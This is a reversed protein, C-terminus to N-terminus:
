PAKEQHTPHTVQQQRRITFRGDFVGSNGQPTFTAPVVVDQTKGKVTLQGAVEYRNGSLTKVNGSVLRASPFAKTSLKGAVEEDAESSGADISALEVDFTLM